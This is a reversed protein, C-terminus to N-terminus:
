LLEATLKGVSVVLDFPGNRTTGTMSVALRQASLDYAVAATASLVREDLLAERECGQKIEQLTLATIRKALYGRLWFGFSQDGGVDVLRGRPMLLGRAVTEAVATTGAIVAFTPDLDPTGGPFTSHDTGLDFEDAM